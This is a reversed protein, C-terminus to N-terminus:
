ASIVCRLVARQWQDRASDCSREDTHRCPRIIRRRIGGAANISDFYLPASLQMDRGLEAEPGSLAVSPGLVFDQQARVPSVAAPAVVFLTTVNRFLKTFM